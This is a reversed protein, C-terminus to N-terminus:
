DMIYVLDTYRAGLMNQDFLFFEGTEQRRTGVVVWSVTHPTTIIIINYAIFADTTPETIKRDKGKLDDTGAGSVLVCPFIIHAEVCRGGENAMRSGQKAVEERM